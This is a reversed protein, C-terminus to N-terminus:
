RASSAERIAFFEDGANWSPLGNANAIDMGLAMGFSAAQALGTFDWDQHFEDSPQHYDEGYRDSVQRSYDAPKGSYSSGAGISFAPIGVRALSFHDSRYYYGAEPHAEPDLKLAMRQAIQRVVPWATTREAGSVTLSDLRGAPLLADYNLNIATKGAPIVPHAGYYQSGLLGAEEATVAVFVASRRPKQPLAAWARALEMLIACGTANDVAGNYIGDGRVPTGIGLHDWHASFVVAERALRPDSGPAIAVVNNSEIDRLKSVLHASITVGLPFPRFHPSEAAALLDSVTRGSKRLLATAADATIWGSLALASAGPALRVQPNEKGWSNRVVDWGYGATPTTHIIICALAGRRAAEEFKYTWRGYYTLSRGGFFGPDSSAPENTFLVVVKNRVDIGKYDDWHFEPATIGHGVFIAEARFRVDAQQKGTVGVFQRLYEFSLPQGATTASLSTGPQPEVGVLPVRQYYTQNDGAPRLGALEFQTAIYQSALEGGRTGVGRGELLDSSLLRVDARIRQPSIQPLPQAQLAGIFFFIAPLLKM